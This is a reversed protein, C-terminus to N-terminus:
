KSALATTMVSTNSPLHSSTRALRWVVSAM